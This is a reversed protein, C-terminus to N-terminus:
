SAPVVFLVVRLIGITPLHDLNSALVSGHDVAEIKEVGPEEPDSRSFHFAHIGHLSLDQLHSISSEEIGPLCCLCKQLRERRHIDTTRRGLPRHHVLAWFLGTAARLTRCSRANCGRDHGVPERKDKPHVAGADGEVRVSGSTQHDQIMSDYGEVLAATLRGHGRTSSNHSHKCRDCPDVAESHAVHAFYPPTEGIILARITPVLALMKQGNSDITQRVGDVAHLHLIFSAVVDAGDTSDAHCVHALSHGKASGM